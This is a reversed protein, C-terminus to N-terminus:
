RRDKILSPRMADGNRLSDELTRRFLLERYEAEAQQRARQTKQLDALEATNGAIEIDAAASVSGIQAALNGNRRADEDHAKVRRVFQGWASQRLARKLTRRSQRYYRELLKDTDDPDIEDIIPGLLNLGSARMGFRTAERAILDMRYDAVTHIGWFVDGGAAIAQMNRNLDRAEVYLERAQPFEALIAYKMDTLLTRPDFTAIAQAIRVAERSTALVDNVGGVLMRLNAVAKTLSAVQALEQMLISTLLQTEGSIVGTIAHSPSATLLVFATAGAALKRKM